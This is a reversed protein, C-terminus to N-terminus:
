ISANLGKEKEKKKEEEEAVLWSGSTETSSGVVKVLMAAM